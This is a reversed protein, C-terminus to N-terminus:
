STVGAEQGIPMPAIKEAGIVEEGIREQQELAADM